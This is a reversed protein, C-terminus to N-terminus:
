HIIFVHPVSKLAYANNCNYSGQDKYPELNALLSTNSDDFRKRVASLEGKLYSIQNACIAIDPSGAQVPFKM